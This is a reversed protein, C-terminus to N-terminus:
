TDVRKQLMSEKKDDQKQKDKFQWIQRQEHRAQQFIIETRTNM